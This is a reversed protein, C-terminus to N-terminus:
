IKLNRVTTVFPHILIAKTQGDICMNMREPQLTFCKIFYENQFYEAMNKEM